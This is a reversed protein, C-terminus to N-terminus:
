YRPRSPKLDIFIMIMGIIVLAASILLPDKGFIPNEFFFWIIIGVVM